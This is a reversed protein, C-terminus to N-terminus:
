TEQHKIFVKVSIYFLVLKIGVKFLIILLKDKIKKVFMIMSYLLNKITKMIWIVSQFLKDNSVNMIDCGVDRSKKM